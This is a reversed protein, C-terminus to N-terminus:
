KASQRLIQAPVGVVELQNDKFFQVYREALLRRTADFEQWDWQRLIAAVQEISIGDRYDNADAHPIKMTQCLELTRSDISLCLSPLGAQIGAMVGHIRTGVVVDFAKLMSLWEPVSTFSHSWRRFWQLFEDEGLGPLIYDKYRNFTPGPMKTHEQKYLRIMDLPAQCVYMGGSCEVLEVLSQELKQLHANSPSGATVVVRRLTQTAKRHIERGLTASPNIFNSPCGIVVCKEALGKAAIADYTAQGRLSVNPRDTASKGAVVRLWEWSGEPISALQIGSSPGQAGLGVGVVPVHITRFTEALKALDVHPGLWNALPVVIRDREPTLRAIDAGWPISAPGVDLMRSIAHCFVLNGTNGGSQRSLEDANLFPADPLYSSIGYLHAKAAQKPPAAPARAPEAVPVAARNTVLFRDIVVEMIVDPNYAEIVKEDVQRGWVFLSESFYETLFPIMWDAYSDRLIIARPLSGERKNKFWRTPRTKSLAKYPHEVLEQADKVYDVGTACVPAPAEGAATSSEVYNGDAYDLRIKASLDCAGEKRELLKFKTEDFPPMDPFKERLRGLIARTALMAGLYNWHSDTKYCLPGRDKNALLADKLDIIPEDLVPGVAAIFQDRVCPKASPVVSEPLFESYVYEKGPAIALLYHVSHERYSAQRKRYMAVYDQILKPTLRLRGTYQEIAGNSDNCLFLWGQKGVLALDLRQSGPTKGSPTPFLVKAPSNRLVYGTQAEVIKVEHEKGDWLAPPLRLNFAHSTGSFAPNRSLDERHEDAVGSCACVNDILVKIQLQRTVDALDILWGAVIKSDCRDVHGVM